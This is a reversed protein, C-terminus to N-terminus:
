TKKHQTNNWNAYNTQDVKGLVTYNALWATDLSAYITSSYMEVFVPHM